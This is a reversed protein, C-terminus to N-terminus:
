PISNTPCHGHYSIFQGDNQTGDIMDEGSSCYNEEDDSIDYDSSM